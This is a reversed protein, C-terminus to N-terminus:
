KLGFEKLEEIWSLFKANNEYKGDKAGQKAYWLPTKGGKDEMNKLAGKKVLFDVKNRHGYYCLKHLMTQGNDDKANIPIFQNWEEKEVYELNEEVLDERVYLFLLEIRNRIGLFKHDFIMEVIEKPFFLKEGESRSLNFNSLLFDSEYDSFPNNKLSNKILKLNEEIKKPLLYKNIDDGYVSAVLKHVMDTKLFIQQRMVENYSDAGKELMLEVVNHHGRKAALVMAENYKNAGKELIMEVMDRYDYAAVIMLSDNWDLSGKISLFEVIKRRGLRAASDIAGKYDNAGKSLLLELVELHGRNAASVMAWNYKTAGKEIMLKVIEVHGGRSAKEMAEDYKYAGKEIMLEVVDIRGDGAGREMMWESDKLSEETMLEEIQSKIWKEDNASPRKCLGRMYILEALEVHKEMVALHLAWVFDDASNDLAMEVVEECGMWAGIRLAINLLSINDSKTMYMLGEIDRNKIIKEINNSKEDGESPEIQSDAELVKPSLKFSLGRSVTCGVGMLLILERKIM